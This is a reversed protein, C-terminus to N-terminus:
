KVRQKFVNIGEEPLASSEMKLKMFNRVYGKFLTDSTKDFNWVEYIEIIRYAKKLALVVENTCWTGTFAREDGTHDCKEQQQMVACTRCLPFLLKESKGCKLRVPLVPHYLGRPAEIKCQIFGRWQSDYMKPNFIKTPHGVPYEKFFNVTPYLSVFDVYRGKENPKFDYTLKTVNTRGGFFADRPNLPLLLEVNNSKCYKKFEKSKQLECEHVEVLNYGLDRIRQNKRETARQLEVMDMQTVPNIQDETYCKKCGHWFCGQFEYVTNTTKCFGDVEGVSLIFHEGGNMAHQIYVNCTGSLYNLWQISMKSCTNHPVDKVIGITKEPMYKSSYLAMCVSAIMIYQLPDINGIKLFGDRLTIMGRHLIVVDSKCYAELEKKFDFVYNEAVREDYWTLFNKRKSPKMHDPHYYYKPPIPGVYTQNGLTNFLHPFYGKKLEDLGFTKPFTQLASNVFNISDIFRLSFEKVAM